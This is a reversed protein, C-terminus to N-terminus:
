NLNCILWNYSHGKYMKNLHSSHKHNSDDHLPPSLHLVVLRSYIMITCKLNNSTSCAEVNTQVNHLCLTGTPQMVNVPNDKKGWSFTTLQSM